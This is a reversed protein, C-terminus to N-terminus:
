APGRREDHRQVLALSALSPADTMMAGDVLSWLEDRSFWKCLMDSETAEREPAGFSLDTAVYIHGRPTAYGYAEHVTGVHRMSGATLGTEELLEATATAMPSSGNSATAPSGQPFEWYRGGAPHRYQEVLFYGDNHRPVILSFDQKEVVGFIGTSGDAHVVEDERVSLWANSYVTRTSLTEM